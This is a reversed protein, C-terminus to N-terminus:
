SPRLRSAKRRRRRFIGEIQFYPLLSHGRLQQLVAQRADIHAGAQYPTFDAGDERVLRLTRILPTEETVEAVTVRLGSV